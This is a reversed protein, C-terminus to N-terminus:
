QMYKLGVIQMWSNIEQSYLSDFKMSTTPHGSTFSQLGLTMTDFKLYTFCGRSHQHMDIKKRISLLKRLGHLMNGPFDCVEIVYRLVVQIAYVRM